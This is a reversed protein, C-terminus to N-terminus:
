LLEIIGAFDGNETKSGFSGEIYDQPKGNYEYLRLSPDSEPDGDVHEILMWGIRRYQGQRTGTPRLLLLFTDYFSRLEPIAGYSIWEPSYGLPRQMM